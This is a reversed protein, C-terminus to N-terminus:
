PALSMSRHRLAFAGFGYLDANIFLLSSHGDWPVQFANDIKRLDDGAGPCTDETSCVEPEKVQLYNAVIGTLFFSSDQRKRSADWRHREVSALPREISGNLISFAWCGKVTVDWGVTCATCTSCLGLAWWYFPGRHGPLWLISLGWGSGFPRGEITPPFSKVLCLILMAHCRIGDWRGTSDQFLSLRSLGSLFDRCKWPAGPVELRRGRM